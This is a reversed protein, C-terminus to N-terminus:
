FELEVIAAASPSAIHTMGTNVATTADRMVASPMAFSSPYLTAEVQEVPLREALAAVIQPAMRRDCLVTEGAADLRPTEFAEDLSLDFDTLFSVLQTVAPIIRRGGCAGLAVWPKGERQLLVPCMNALPKKGPAISNALGPRPDFWMMGNNMPIGTEPLVVKSGFRSLLTNTLAVMNGERDVVSLHTTNSLSPMAHGLTAFREAFAARLAEAYALFAAADPYERAAGPIREALRRMAALFTTGGTLLPAANLTIGRYDLRQPAVIEARYQALDLASIASGGANLDAIIARALAGEYFDRPGAQQLRRYTRSLSPLPLRRVASSPPPVPPLGDPLYVARSGEFPRLEAAALAINHSTYWDVPLGGEALRAAPEIAEAFSKRGFRELALAMGAVSGPVAISGYGTINRDGEVLPWGFMESSTGGTLPYSKPDTAAAAVLTFDVVEVKGTAAEGYILLGSGGIGSMWPEVVGLALATAVAADIANGGETLMRAGIEAARWHQAVVIGRESVRAPKAVVWHEIPPELTPISM